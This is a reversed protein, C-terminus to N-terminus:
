LGDLGDAEGISFEPHMGPEVYDTIGYGLV